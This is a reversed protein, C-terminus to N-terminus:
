KLINTIGKTYLASLVGFYNAAMQRQEWHKSHNCTAFVGLPFFRRKLHM